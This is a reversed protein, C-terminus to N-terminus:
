HRNRFLFRDKLLQLAYTLINVGSTATPLDSAGQTEQHKLSGRKVEGPHPALAKEVRLHRELTDIRENALLLEEQLRDRSQIIQALSYVSEPGADVQAQNSWISRLDKDELVKERTMEAHIARRVLASRRGQGAGNVYAAAKHDLSFAM